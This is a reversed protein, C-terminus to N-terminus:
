VYPAVLGALRRASQGDLRTLVSGVYLM